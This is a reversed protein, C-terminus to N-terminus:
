LIVNELIIWGFEYLDEVMERRNNKKWEWLRTGTKQVTAKFNWDYTMSPNSVRNTPPTFHLKLEPLSLADLLFSSDEDSEMVSKGAQKLCILMDGNPLETAIIWDSEGYMPATPCNSHLLRALIAMNQTTGSISYFDEVNKPNIGRLTLVVANGSRNNENDVDASIIQSPTNRVSLTPLPFRFSAQNHTM